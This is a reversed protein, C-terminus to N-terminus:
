GSVVGTFKIDQPVLGSLKNATATVSLGRLQNKPIAADDRIEVTAIATATRGTDKDRITLRVLWTGSGDLAFSKLCAGSATMKKGDQIRVFEWSYELNGTAETIASFTYNTEKKDPFTTVPTDKSCSSVTKDLIRIEATFQHTSDGGNNGNGSNGNNSSNSGNSNGSSNNGSNNSNNSNNSNGSGNGSGSGQKISCLNVTFIKSAMTVFEKKSIYEDPRIKNDAFKKLIGADLGKQAYGYWSANVDSLTERHNFNSTNLDNNWLGAQRLLVAAAEIRTIKNNACFPTENFSTGDQCTSTNSGNVVYGEVMKQEKAYSVCYFNINKRDFDVFPLTTYKLIDDFTPMLCRKCTVGVVISVFEDRNMLADPFFKGTPSEQIIGREYLTKLDAYYDDSEKVDSFPLGSAFAAGM